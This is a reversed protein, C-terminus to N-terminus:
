LGCQFQIILLSNTSCGTQNNGIKKVEYEFRKCKKPKVVKNKVGEKANIEM